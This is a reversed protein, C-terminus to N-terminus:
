EVLGSAAPELPRNDMRWYYRAAFFLVLAMLLLFVPVLLVELTLGLTVEPIGLPDPNPRIKHRTGQAYDRAFQERRSPTAFFLPGARVSRVGPGDRYMFRVMGSGNGPYPAVAVAQVVADVEPWAVYARVEPVVFFGAFFLLFVASAFGLLVGISQSTSLWRRLIWFMIGFLALLGIM